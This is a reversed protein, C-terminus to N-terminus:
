AKAVRSIHGAHALAGEAALVGVTVEVGAAELKAFGQGSVRPDPDVMTAVVRTVGAAILADACPPTRGEHACPELTVYATAGRAQSGAVRLAETEAHPRGTEATWGRGVVRTGHVLIAGVAPNPYTRGLNRRGIRLAAAMFRRDREPDVNTRASKEKSSMPKASAPRFMTPWNVSSSKLTRRRASTRTSLPSGSM